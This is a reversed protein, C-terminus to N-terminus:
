APVVAWWAHDWGALGLRHNTFAARDVDVLRGRAPDYCRLGGASEGLALVVHRPLWRSGIYVPVPHHASTAAVVTDYGRGPDARIWRVERDGLQRAVAWPPTGLGRPWPLQLRGADIPATVRRHMELVDERFRGSVWQAAGERGYVDDALMRAVVLVAAGCSRRDPQVLPERFVRAPWDTSV